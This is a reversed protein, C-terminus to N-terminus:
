QDVDILEGIYGFLRGIGLLASALFFGGWFVSVPLYEGWVFLAYFPALIITFPLLLISLVVGWIGAIRMIISISTELGWLAIMLYLFMGALSFIVSIINLIIKITKTLLGM